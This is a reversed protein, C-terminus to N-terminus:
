NCHANNDNTKACHESDGHVIKRRKERVIECMGGDDDSFIMAFLGDCRAYLEKLSGTNEIVHDTVITKNAVESTHTDSSQSELSHRRIRILVGGLEKIIQAEAPFRVDTVVIIKESHRAAFIKLHRIFVDPDYTKLLDGMEQMIQRPTKNQYQMLPQEKLSNDHMYKMDLGLAHHIVSKLHDGFAFEKIAHAKALYNAVTNKGAQKSGVLAIITRTTNSHQEYRDQM